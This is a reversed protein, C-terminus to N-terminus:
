YLGGLWVSNSVISGGTQGRKADIFAVWFVERISQCGFKPWSHAAFCYFKTFGM